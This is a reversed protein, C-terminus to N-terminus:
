FENKAVCRVLSAVMRTYHGHPQWLFSKHTCIWETIFLVSISQESRVTRIGSQCGACAAAGMSICHSILLMKISSSIFCFCCRVFFATALGRFSTGLTTCKPWLKSELTSKLHKAPLTGQICRLLHSHTLLAFCVGWQLLYTYPM